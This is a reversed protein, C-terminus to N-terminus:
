ARIEASEVLPIDTHAYYHQHRRHKDNAACALGCSRGYGRAGSRSSGGSIDLSLSQGRGPIEVEFYDVLIPLLQEATGLQLSGRSDLTVRHAIRSILEFPQLLLSLAIHVLEVVPRIVDFANL